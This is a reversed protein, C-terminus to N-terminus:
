FEVRVGMEMGDGPTKADALKLTGRQREAANAIEQLLRSDQLNPRRTQRLM